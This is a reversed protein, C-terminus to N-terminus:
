CPVQANAVLEELNYNVSTVGFDPERTFPKRVYYVRCGNQIIWYNTGSEGIQWPDAQLNSESPSALVLALIFDDPKNLATLIENKTITVTKAGQLRGKVEIFRLKGTEPIASEIDYGCNDASVDRPIFNLSNEVAMVAQMAMQEVRKTERAFRDPVEDRKGKLRAMLGAPVVLAGGMVVPPLPSVQQEKELETLRKQLRVQLEDAREMDDRIQRVRSSDMSDHALAKKELLDKLRDTDLAQEVQQTLRARIEPRDGYRVAEILLKRLEAGGLAKGLVDFVAGGLAKREAELKKLLTLYVDGERTEDAVLSWLHCM